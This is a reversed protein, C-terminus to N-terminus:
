GKVRAQGIRTEASAPTAGCPHPQCRCWEAVIGSLKETAPAAFHIAAEVGEGPKM